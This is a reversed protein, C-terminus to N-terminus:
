TSAKRCFHTAKAIWWSQSTSACSSSPLPPYPLAQAVRMETARASCPKGTPISIPATGCFTDLENSIASSAQQLNQYAFDTEVKYFGRLIVIRAIPYLGSILGAFALLIIFLTKGRLSSYLKSIM